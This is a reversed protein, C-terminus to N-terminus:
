VSLGCPDIVVHQGLGAVVRRVCLLTSRHVVADGGLTPELRDSV